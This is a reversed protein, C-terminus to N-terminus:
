RYKKVADVPKDAASRMDALHQKIESTLKEIQAREEHKRVIDDLSADIFSRLDKIMAKISEVQAARERETLSLDDSDPLALIAQLPSVDVTPRLIAQLNLVSLKLEGYSNSM